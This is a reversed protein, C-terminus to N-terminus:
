EEILIFGYDDEYDNPGHQGDTTIETGDNLIITL